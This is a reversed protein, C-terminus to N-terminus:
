KEKSKLLLAIIAKPLPSEAFDRVIKTADENDIDLIARWGEPTTLEIRM